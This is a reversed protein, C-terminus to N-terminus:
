TILHRVISTNKGVDTTGYHLNKNKLTLQANDTTFLIVLLRLINRKVISGTFTNWFLM